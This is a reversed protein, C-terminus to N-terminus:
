SNRMRSGGPVSVVHITRSGTLNHGCAASEGDGSNAPSRRNAVINSAHVIHNIFIFM